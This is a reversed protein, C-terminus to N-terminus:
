WRIPRKVQERGARFLRCDALVDAMPRLGRGHDCGVEFAPVTNLDWADFALPQSYACGDIRRPGFSRFLGARYNELSVEISTGAQEDRIETFGGQRLREVFEPMPVRFRDGDLHWGEPDLYVTLTRCTCPKARWVVVAPATRRDAPLQHKGRKTVANLM